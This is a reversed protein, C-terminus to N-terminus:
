HETTIKLSVVAKLIHVLDPLVPIIPTNSLCSPPVDASDDSDLEHEWHWTLGGVKMASETHRWAM